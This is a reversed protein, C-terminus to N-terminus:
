LREKEARILAPPPARPDEESQLQLLIIAAIVMVGGLIQLGEMTEGLFLYALVGAVIPELTSTISARTARILNIGELYLGFPILTGAIGVYLIWGWVHIPYAHTFAELPPHILNWEVAAVALSYLLVTWPDYRRMGYEGHISWWAFAVAAGLGSLIGALNLSLMDLNYAGVAFFCGVVAGAMAAMTVPRLREGAFLVFYAAIFIPSLYELLIAAAVQIRSIAFMYAINVAAMGCTGLVVFYLVDRGSIRLLSPQRALLWVFLTVAAITLRLQVLQFPSVGESFLFKAASGNSAWLVAALAVCAYGRSSANPPASPIRVPFPYSFGRSRTL